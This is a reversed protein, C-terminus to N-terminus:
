GSLLLIKGPFALFVSAVALLSGTYIEIFIIRLFSDQVYVVSM